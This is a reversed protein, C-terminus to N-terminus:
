GPLPCLEVADVLDAWAPDAMARRCAEMTAAVPAAGSVEVRVFIRLEVDAGPEFAIGAVGEVAGLRAAIERQVPENRWSPAWDRGDALAVVAPRPLRLDRTGPDLIWLRDTELVALRAARRPDVPVPRVDSRWATMAAASTFVPLARRGDPLDVALAAADRAPDEARTGPEPAGARGSDDARGAAGRGPRAHAAVPVILRGATLAAWLRDLRLHRESETDELAATVAPDASGDDSAFPTPAALLREMKARAALAARVQADTATLPLPERGGAAGAGPGGAAGAERGGPAGGGGAGARGRAPRAPDAGPGSM